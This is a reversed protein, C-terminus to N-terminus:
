TASKRFFAVSYRHRPPNPIAAAMAMATTATIAPHRFIAPNAQTKDATPTPGVRDLGVRNHMWNFTTRGVSTAGYWKNRGRKKQRIGLDKEETEGRMSTAEEGKRVRWFFFFWCVEFGNKSSVTEWQFVFIVWWGETGFSCIECRKNNDRFHVSCFM